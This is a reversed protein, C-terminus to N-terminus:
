KKKGYVYLDFNGNKISNFFIKMRMFDAGPGGQDFRSSIHGTDDQGTVLMHSLVYNSHPLDQPFRCEITVKAFFDINQAAKSHFIEEDGPIRSNISVYDKYFKAESQQLVAFAFVALTSILTIQKM